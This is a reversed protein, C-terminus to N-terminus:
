QCRREWWGGRGTAHGTEELAALAVALRGPALGTTALLKETALPTFELCDLVLQADDDPVALNAVPPVVCRAHDVGLATLVEVAGLVPAAGDVLLRNSGASPPSGVPGPVAMVQVGRAIASDVTHQSGGAEHSEVVVVIEALGAIIRNRAPFRWPEPAAGLPSESVILGNEGVAHWLRFHRRPYVVDLGSGVVGLPTGGADLVGEHAAGDIGLALGSVVVVGAETLEAGLRRATQRGYATCRRTGVIAVRRALAVTPDGRFFLVEPREPDDLLASPYAPDGPLAVGVGADVLQALHGGAGMRALERRWLAILATPDRGLTAAVEPARPAAGRAVRAYVEQPLGTTLLAALRAPGCGPLSALAAAYAHQPPDSSGTM